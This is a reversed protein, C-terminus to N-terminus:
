NIGNAGRQNNTVTMDFMTDDFDEFNHEANSKKGGETTSSQNNNNQSQKPDETHVDIFQDEQLPLEKKNFDLVAECLSIKYNLSSPKVLTSPANNM